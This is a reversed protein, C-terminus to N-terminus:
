YPFACCILVIRRRCHIMLSILVSIESTFIVTEPGSEKFDASGKVHICGTRAGDTIIKAEDSKETIKEVMQILAYTVTMCPFSDKGTHTIHASLGGLRAVLPLDLKLKDM